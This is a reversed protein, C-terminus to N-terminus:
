FGSINNSRCNFVHFKKAHDNGSEIPSDLNGLLSQITRDLRVIVVRFHKIAPNIIIGFM